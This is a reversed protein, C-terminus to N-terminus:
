LLIGQEAKKRRRWATMRSVPGGKLPRGMRKKPLMLGSDNKDSLLTNGTVVKTVPQKGSPPTEDANQTTDTTKVPGVCVTRLTETVQYGMGYHVFTFDGPMWYDREDKAM